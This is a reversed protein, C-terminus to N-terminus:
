FMGRPSPKSKGLILDNRRGIDYFVKEKDLFNSPTYVKPPRDM